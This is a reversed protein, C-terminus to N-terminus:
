KRRDFYTKLLSKSFCNLLVKLASKLPTNPVACFNFDKMKLSKKLLHSVIRLFSRIQDCKSFFDKISVKMEQATHSGIFTSLTCKGIKALIEMMSTQYPGIYPKSYFRDHM